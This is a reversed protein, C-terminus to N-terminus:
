AWANGNWNYNKLKVDTLSKDIYYQQAVSCFLLKNSNIDQVMRAPNRSWAWKFFDVLSTDSYCTRPAFEGTLTFGCQIIKPYEAPLGQLFTAPGGKPCKVSGLAKLNQCSDAKSDNEMRNQYITCRAIPTTSIVPATGNPLRAGATCGQLNPQVKINEFYNPITKPCFQAAKDAFKKRMLNVCSPLTATDTSLSCVTTGNCQGDVISGDCCSVTGQTMDNLAETGPPCAQLQIDANGATVDFFPEETKTQEMMFYCGIVVSIGLLVLCFLLSQLPITIKM